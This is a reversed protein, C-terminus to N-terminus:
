AILEVALIEAEFFPNWRSSGFWWGVTLRSPIVLDGFRREAQVEGGCPIYGHRGHAGNDWRLVQGSRVAGQQDIQLRVEPREPPVDWSAVILEDSEARWTVGQEPLLSAPAWNAAEVAARGAGSRATDEGAAHVMPVRGFLRVDMSGAGDAFGDVVRFITLPGWGIRARWAFSGGDGEWEAKFPLWMGLKIRGAMGLRVGNGLRAGPALAHRFYRQVPEDLGALSAPDFHSRQEVSAL